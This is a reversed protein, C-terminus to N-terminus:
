KELRGSMLPYNLFNFSLIVNEVSFSFVKGLSNKPVIEKERFDHFSNPDLETWLEPMSPETTYNFLISRILM